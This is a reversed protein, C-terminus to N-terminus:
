AVLVQRALDDLQDDLSTTKNQGACLVLLRRVYGGVLLARRAVACELVPELEVLAGRAGAMVEPTAGHPDAAIGPMPTHTLARPAPM